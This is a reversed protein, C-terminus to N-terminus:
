AAMFSEKCLDESTSVYLSTRRNVIKGSILDSYTKSICVKIIKEAM